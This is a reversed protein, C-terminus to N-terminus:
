RRAFKKLDNHMVWRVLWPFHNNAFHIFKNNFGPTIQPRNRMIGIAMERAVDEPQLLGAGESLMATEPPKIENERHFQPTDTDPPFVLSVGIGDTVLEQRLSETFGTIAHKSAAYATYGFCGLFGLTSSVNCIRGSKQERLTPLFAQTVNVMGFFNVDMMAQFQEPTLEHIYGPIAFGANNIVVDIGGLTEIVEAAAAQVAERDAVDVSIAHVTGEGRERLDAATEDLREQGRAAISVHAGADAVLRATAKGIGSSGGTIFVRKDRYWQM